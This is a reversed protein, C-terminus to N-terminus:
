AVDLDIRVENTEAVIRAEFGHDSIGLRPQRRGVRSVPRASLPGSQTPLTPTTTRNKTNVTIPAHIRRGQLQGSGADYHQSSTPAENDAASAPHAPVMFAGLALGIVGALTGKVTCRSRLPVGPM